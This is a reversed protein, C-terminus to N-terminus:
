MWPGCLGSFAIDCETTELSEIVGKGSLQAEVKPAYPIGDERRKGESTFTVWEPLVKSLPDCRDSSMEM